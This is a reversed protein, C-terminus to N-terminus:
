LFLVLSQITFMLLISRVQANANMSSAKKVASNDNAEHDSPGEVLEPDLPPILLYVPAKLVIRRKGWDHTQGDDM